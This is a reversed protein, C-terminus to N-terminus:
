SSPCAIGSGTDIGATYYSDANPTGDYKWYYIRVGTINNNGSSIAAQNAPSGSGCKTYKLVNPSTPQTTTLTYTISSPVYYPASPDATFDSTAYPYTGREANYTEVKQVVSQAASQAAATNARTTIGNYSVITIAALIGIVVIVVLLEIITFGQQRLSSDRRPTKM